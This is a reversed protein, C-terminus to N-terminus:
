SAGEPPPSVILAANQGGMGFSSSLVARARTPRPEGLVHDLACDDDPEILNCTPPVLGTRCTQIAM